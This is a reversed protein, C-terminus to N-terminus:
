FVEEDFGMVDPGSNIYRLWANELDEKLIQLLHEGVLGRVLALRQHKPLTDFRSLGADDLLRSLQEHGISSPVFVGAIEAILAEAEFDTMVDLSEVIYSFVKAAEKQIESINYTTMATM